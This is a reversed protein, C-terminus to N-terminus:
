FSRVVQFDFVDSKEVTGESADQITIRGYYHGEEWTATVASDVRYTVTGDTVPTSVTCAQNNVIVTGGDRYRQITIYVTKGTLDIPESEMDWLVFELERDDGQVIRNDTTRIFFM